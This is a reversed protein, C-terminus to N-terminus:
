KDMEVRCVSVGFWYLRIGCGKLHENDRYYDFTYFGFKKHTISFFM